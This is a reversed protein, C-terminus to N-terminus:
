LLRCVLHGRSQLLRTSKRDGLLFSFFRPAPDRPSMYYRAYLVVLGGIGTVLLAFLWALGDMRLTFELGLQPLWPLSHRLVEGQAVAPYQSATLVFGTLDVLGALTSEARRANGPLFAAVLSSVFPLVLTLFLLNGDMSM